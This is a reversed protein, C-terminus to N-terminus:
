TVAALELMSAVMADPDQLPGFHGLGAAHVLEGRPLRAVIQEGFTAPPSGDPDGCVVRVGCRVEGLRPYIGSAGGTTYIRAEYSPRCKLEFRGDSRRRLGGDVYARLAQATLADLPPKSAYAAFADDLSDWVDRRRLAAASMPNEIPLETPEDVPVVIPEYAWIRAYTGPRRIEGGLLAAGGKSHGVALLRPDGVLDLRETVVLADTIFGTWDDDGEPAPDSDGHGRFDFSWVRRGAAILRRAVPEWVRGHFGTPHALLTPPGNGGWDYIELHM